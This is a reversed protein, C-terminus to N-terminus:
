NSFLWVAKRLGFADNRRFIVVLALDPWKRLAGLSFKQGHLLLRTPPQKGDQLPGRPGAFLGLIEAKFGGVLKVSAQGRPPLGLLRPSAVAADSLLLSDDLAAGQCAQTKPDVLACHLVRDPRYARGQASVVILEQEVSSIQSSVRSTVLDEPDDGVTQLFGLYDDLQALPPKSKAQATVEAFRELQTPSSEGRAIRSGLILVLALAVHGALSYQASRKM